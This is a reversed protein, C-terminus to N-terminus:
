LLVVDVYVTAGYGSATLNVYKRRDVTGNRVDDIRGNSVAGRVPSLFAIAPRGLGHAIPTPVGDALKVNEVIVASLMRAQQLEVIKREFERRCIEADGELQPTSPANM